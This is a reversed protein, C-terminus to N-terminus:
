GCWEDEQAATVAIRLPRENASRLGAPATRSGSVNLVRRVPGSWFAVSIGLRRTTPSPYVQRGARPLSFLRSLCGWSKM